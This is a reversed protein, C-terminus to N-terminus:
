TCNPRRIVRVNRQQSPSYSSCRISEFWRRASGFSDITLNDARTRQSTKSHNPNPKTIINTNYRVSNSTAGSGSGSLLLLLLLLLIINIIIIIINIVIIIVIIVIFCKNNNQLLIIGIFIIIKDAIVINLWYDFLYNWMLGAFLHFRM